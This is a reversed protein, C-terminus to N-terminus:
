AQKTASAGSDRRAGALAAVLVPWEIWAHVAAALGYLARAGAFDVVFHVLLGLSLAVVVVAFRGWSPWPLTPRENATLTRPLWVIVAGYHLLQATVAASFLQAAVAEVQLSPPLYVGYHDVLSGVRWPQADLDVHASLLGLPVGAAVVAPVGVFVATAALAVFPRRGVPAREVLFLLPTANHLFAFLLVLPVPAVIAFLAVGVGVVAAVVVLLRAAPRTTGQWGAVAAGGFLVAVLVLEVPVTTSATVAGVVGLARLAVIGVLVAGTARWFSRPLENGFRADVYRVETLVHGLGFVALSFTYSFLPWLTAVVAVVVAYVIVALAWAWSTGRGPRDPGHSVTIGVVGLGEAGRDDAL